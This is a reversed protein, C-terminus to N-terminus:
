APAGPSPAPPLPPPGHPSVNTFIQGRFADPWSGARPSVKPRWPRWSPIMGGGCSGSPTLVAGAVFGGLHAFWGVGDDGSFPPSSSSCSGLFRHGLVGSGSRFATCSSRGCRSARIPILYAAVVGSVAGSAGILPRTSEPDVFAHTPARRPGCLLLFVFFRLHGMADEVNDGFVWLFLMNGVLHLWSGTCSSRHRSRRGYRCSPSARRCLETGFFVAPILGFGAVVLRRRDPRLLHFCLRRRLHRHVTPQRRSDERAQPPVGDHLPLFMSGCRRPTPPKSEKRVFLVDRASTDDTPRSLAAPTRVDERGPGRVGTSAAAAHVAASNRNLPKPRSGVPRRSRGQRQRLPIRRVPLGLASQSIAGGGSSVIEDPQAALEVTLREARRCVTAALHLAAAAPTGGPLVFSRLNGLPREAPRDGARAERGSRRRHPAARLPPAKGDIADRSGRRSRLSREPHTGCRTSRTGVRTCGRLDSARTTEDVTGPRSACTTNPAGSAAPSRRRAGQRRHPYLHPEPRGDRSRWPSQPPQLPSQEAPEGGRTPHDVTAPTPDCLLVVRAGVNALGGDDGCSGTNSLREARRGDLEM